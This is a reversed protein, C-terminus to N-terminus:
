QASVFSYLVLSFCNPISFALRSALAKDSVEGGGQVKRVSCWRGRLHDWSWGRLNGLLPNASRPPSLVSVKRCVQEVKRLRRARRARRWKAESSGQKACWM